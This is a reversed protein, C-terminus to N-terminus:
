GLRIYCPNSTLSENCILGVPTFRTGPQLWVSVNPQWCGMRLNREGSKGGTARLDQCAPHWIDSLHGDTTWRTLKGKVRNPTVRCTLEAWKLLMNAAEEKKKKQSWFTVVSTYALVGALTQIQTLMEEADRCWLCLFCCWVSSIEIEPSQRQPQQHTDWQM